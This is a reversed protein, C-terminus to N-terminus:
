NYYFQMQFFRFSLRSSNLRFCRNRVFIVKEIFNNSFLIQGKKKEGEGVFKEFYNKTVCILM